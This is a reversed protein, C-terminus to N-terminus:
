ILAKQFKRISLFSVYELLEKQWYRETETYLKKLFILTQLFVQGCSDKWKKTLAGLERPNSSMDRSTPTRVFHSALRIRTKTEAPKEVLGWNYM